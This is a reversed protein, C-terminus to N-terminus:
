INPVHAMSDLQSASAGKSIPLYKSFDACPAHPVGPENQLSPTATDLSTIM